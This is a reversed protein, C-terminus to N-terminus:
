LSLLPMYSLFSANLTVRGKTFPGLPPVEASFTEQDVKTFIRWMQDAAISVHITPSNQLQQISHIVSARSLVYKISSSAQFLKPIQDSNFDFADKRKKRVPLSLSM